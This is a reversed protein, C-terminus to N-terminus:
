IADAFICGIQREPYNREHIWYQGYHEHFFARLQRREGPVRRQYEDVAAQEDTTMPIEYNVWKVWQGRADDMGPTNEKFEM